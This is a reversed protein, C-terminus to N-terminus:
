AASVAAPLVVLLQVADFVGHAVMCPLVDRQTRFLLGIVLSVTFVGVLMLPLGYSAHSMTFLLTSVLLGARPQLFSRFFLEEFVGASAVLLLRRWVPMAVLFRVVEPIQTKGGAGGAASTVEGAGLAAAILATVAMAGITVAWAVIGAALGIALRRLPQALGLHLFRAPADFGALGWWLVLFGALIAHGAFLALFSTEEFDPMAPEGFLGQLPVFTTVALVAVLLAVAVGHRIPGPFPELAIRPERRRAILGLVVVTSLVLSSVIRM